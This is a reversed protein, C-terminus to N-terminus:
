DIFMLGRQKLEQLVPMLSTSEAEFRAGFVTVFGVYGAAEGMLKHLRSANQTQDLSTLLTLPGPDERPYDIPELPLDLLSEHGLSRADTMAKKVDAAYPDFGLSVPGPLRDLAALSLARDLGIGIVLLAIRPRKDTRDFPRAYVRWAQW